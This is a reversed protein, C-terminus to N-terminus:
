FHSSLVFRWTWGGNNYSTNTCTCMCTRTTYIHQEHPHMYTHTCRHTSTLPWCHTHAEIVNKKEFLDIIPGSVWWNLSAGPIWGDQGEWHQPQPHVSRLLHKSAHRWAQEAPVPSLRQRRGKTPDTDSSCFLHQVRQVTSKRVPGIGATM